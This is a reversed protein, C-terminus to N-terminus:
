AKYEKDLAKEREAMAFVEDVRHLYFQRLLYIYLLYIGALFSWFLIHPFLEDFQRDYIGDLVEVMGWDHLIPASDSTVAVKCVRDKSMATNAMCAAISTEYAVTDGVQIEYFNHDLMAQASEEFFADIKQKEEANSKKLIADSIWPAYKQRYYSEVQTKVAGPTTLKLTLTDGYEVRAVEHEINAVKADEWKIFSVVTGCVLIINLYLLRRNLIYALIGNIIFALPALLLFILMAFKMGDRTEENVQSVDEPYLKRRVFGYLAISIVTFSLLLRLITYTSM